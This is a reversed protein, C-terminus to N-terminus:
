YFCFLTSLVSDDNQVFYYIPMDAEFSECCDLCYQGLLFYWKYWEISITIQFSIVKTNKKIILKDM